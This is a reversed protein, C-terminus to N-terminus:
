TNLVPESCMKVLSKPFSQSETSKIEQKLLCLFLSVLLSLALHAVSWTCYRLLTLVFSRVPFRAPLILVSQRPIRIHLFSPKVASLSILPSIYYDAQYVDIAVVRLYVYTRSWVAYSMNKVFNQIVYNSIELLDSKGFNWKIHSTTYCVNSNWGIVATTVIHRITKDKKKGKDDEEDGIAGCHTTTAPHGNCVKCVWPRLRHCQHGKTVRRLHFESSSCQNM